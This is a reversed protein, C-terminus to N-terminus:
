SRRRKRRLPPRDARPVARALLLHIPINLGRALRILTEYSPNIEGRELAGVYNHPLGARLAVMHQSLRLEHRRMYIANGLWGLLREREEPALKVSMHRPPTQSM